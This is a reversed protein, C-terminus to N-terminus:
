PPAVSTAARSAAAASTCSAPSASPSRSATRTSSTSAPAPSRAASTPERAPEGPALPPVLGSTTVVTAETPGYNNVVAFPLGPGPRVRLRDGGTLLVRLDCRAPWQLRLLEEAIATPQFSITIARRVLWDRLEEPALRLTAAPVALSAGVSLYPWIEWVSADFGPSAVLTARDAPGVAFSRTHWAVLNSLGRHEVLVGKPRGTSGSTYVVYALSEPGIRRPPPRRSRRRGARHPAALPRPRRRRTPARGPSRPAGPRHAAIALPRPRRPRPRNAPGPGRLRPARRAPRRAPRPRRRRRPHLGPARRRGGPRAPRLRRRGEM